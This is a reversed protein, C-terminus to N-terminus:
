SAPYTTVRGAVYWDDAVVTVEAPHVLRAVLRSTAPVVYRAPAVIALRTDPSAHILRADAAAPVADLDISATCAVVIEEGAGTVGVAMAPGDDDVSSRPTAPEVPELYAAGVIEPTSLLVCRLWRSRAMRGLPHHDADLGDRHRRVQDVVRDLTARLTDDAADPM